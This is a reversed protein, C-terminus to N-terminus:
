LSRVLNAWVDVYVYKGKLDDLSVRNGSPDPYNFKPSPAGKKMSAYKSHEKEYNATYFDIVKNNADREMDIVEQELGDADAIMQELKVKLAEMKQDFAEKELEFILAYQDLKEEQIFALKSGLYNNTVAGNGKFEISGPFDQTDFNLELDYGNKLYIFSQEKGDNFGHFGDTVKLTDKFSGDEAVSIEKKFDKGLITLTNSNAENIKGQITVYNKTEKECSFLSIALFLTLIRKM